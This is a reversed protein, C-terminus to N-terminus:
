KSRVFLLSVWFAVFTVGAQPELTDETLFSLACILVVSFALLDKNGISQALFRVISILLLLLGIVGFAVWFTLYQNHTRLRYEESLRTGNNEYEQK